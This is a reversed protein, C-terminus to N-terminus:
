EEDTFKVKCSFSFDGLTLVCRDFPVEHKTFIEEFYKLNM